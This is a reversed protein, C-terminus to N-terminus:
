LELIYSAELSIIFTNKYDPINRLVYFLYGTYLRAFAIDVGIMPQMGINIKEFDTKITTGFRGFIPAFDSQLDLYSIDLNLGGVKHKFNYDFILKPIIYTENLWGPPDNTLMFDVGLKLDVGHAAYSTGVVPNIHTLCYKESCDNNTQASIVKHLSFLCIILLLFKYLYKM